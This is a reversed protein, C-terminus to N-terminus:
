LCQSPHQKKEELREIQGNGIALLLDSVKFNFGNCLYQEPERVMGHDRILRCKEALHDENTVIFGGYGVSLLSVM